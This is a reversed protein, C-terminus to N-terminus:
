KNKVSINFGPGIEISLCWISNKWQERQGARERIEDNIITKSSKVNDLDYISDKASRETLVSSIPLYSRSSVYWHLISDEIQHHREWQWNTFPQPLLQRKPMWQSDSWIKCIELRSDGDLSENPTITNKINKKQTVDVILILTVRGYEWQYMVAWCLYDM